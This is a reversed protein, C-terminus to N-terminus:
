TSSKIREVMLFRGVVEQFSVGQRAHGPPIESENRVREQGGTRKGVRRYGNQSSEQVRPENRNCGQPARWGKQRLCEREMDERAGDRAGSLDQSM